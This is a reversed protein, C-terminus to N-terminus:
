KEQQTLNCALESSNTGLEVRIFHYFLGTSLIIFLLVLVNGPIIGPM